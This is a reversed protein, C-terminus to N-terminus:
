QAHDECQDEMRHLEHYELTRLIGLRHRSLRAKLHFRHLNNTINSRSRKAIRGFILPITEPISKIISLAILGPEYGILTHTSKRVDLTLDRRLFPVLGALPGPFSDGSLFVSHQARLLRVLCHGSAVLPDGCPKVLDLGPV